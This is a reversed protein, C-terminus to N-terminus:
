AFAKVNLDEQASLVNVDSGAWWSYMKMWYEWVNLAYIDLDESMVYLEAKKYVWCM